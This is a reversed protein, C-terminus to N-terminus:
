IGGAAAAAADCVAHRCPTLISHCRTDMGKADNMMRHDIFVVFLRYQYMAVAYEM